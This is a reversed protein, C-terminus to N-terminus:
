APCGLKWTRKGSLGVAGSSNAASSSLRVSRAMVPAGARELFETSGPAARMVEVLRFCGGLGADPKGRKAPLLVVKLSRAILQM